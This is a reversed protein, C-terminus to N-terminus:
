NVIYGAGIHGTARLAVTLAIAESESYYDESEAGVDIWSVTYRVAYDEVDAFEIGAVVRDIDVYMSQGVGEDYWYENAAERKEEFFSRLTDGSPLELDAIGDFKKEVARVFSDSAWSEWASDTEEMELTSNAEEDILPYDALGALVDLIADATDDACTLLGTLGVVAAYTSYGGHASFVWENDKGYEETFVKYNSKEVLSGSYDSGSAYPVYFYVEGSETDDASLARLYSEASNPCDTDKLDGYSVDGEARTVYGWSGDRGRCYDELRLFRLNPIGRLRRLREVATIVRVKSLRKFVPAHTAITM